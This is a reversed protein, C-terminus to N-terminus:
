LIRPPTSERQFTVGRICSPRKGVNRLLTSGTNDLTKCDSLFFFIKPGKSWLFSCRRHKCPERTDPIYHVFDRSLRLLSLSLSLCLRLPTVVKGPLLKSQNVKRKYANHVLILILLLYSFVTCWYRYKTKYDNRIIFRLLHM